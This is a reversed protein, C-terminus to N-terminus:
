EKKTLNVFNGVPLTTDGQESSNGDAATIPRPVSLRNSANAPEAQAPAKLQNAGQSPAVISDDSDSHNVVNEMCTKSHSSHTDWAASETTQPNAGNLYQNIFNM